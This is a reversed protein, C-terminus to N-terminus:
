RELIMNSRAQDDSAKKDITELYQGISSPLINCDGRLLAIIALILELTSQFSSKSRM